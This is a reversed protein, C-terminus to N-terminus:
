RRARKRDARRRAREEADLVREMEDLLGLPYAM